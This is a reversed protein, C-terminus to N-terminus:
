EHAGKLPQLEKNAPVMPPPLPRLLNIRGTEPNAEYRSLYQVIAEAADLPQGNEGLHRVNTAALKNIKNPESAYNYGAVSYMRDPDLAEWEGTTRSLAQVNSTRSGRSQYPDLDFKLRNWTHLWGGTWKETDPSLSGDSFAELNDLIAQGSMDGVALYPGIAIYHYVDAMTVDGPAVHTGYRFGRLLGFDAGGIERFAEAIFIHSTGEIVAPVNADAYNSRHLGIATTGIVTDIPRSLALGSIPNTHTEFSGSLFPARVENVLEAIREDPVVEDDVIHMTFAKDVIENNADFVVTVEGVRTGDQGMEFVWTGGSTVVPAFTEEHMDSSLVLDIGPHAEALRVNNAEGLESIVVLLDVNETERLLPVLEALEDDGTTFTFGQVVEPGVVTPGRDTTFGIIGVKIGDIMTIAYPPVVTEGAKDAYPDGSYTLNAALANWPALPNEGGFLEIFRETGWVFDWNGPAFYNIGFENVVDILAQGETFLAEASGQVVDGTNVVVTNDHRGRIEQIVSYLRALGGQTGGAEGSRLNPRPVMHGHIDGLQIFTISKEGLQEGTSPQGSCGTNAVCFILIILLPNSPPKYFTM